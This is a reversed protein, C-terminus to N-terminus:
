GVTYQKVTYARKSSDPIEKKILEEERVFQIFRNIDHFESKMKNNRESVWYLIGCWGYWWFLRAVEPLEDDPVYEADACAWCWVDNLNITQKYKEQSYEDELDCYFFVDAKTLFERAEQISFLEKEKFLVIVDMLSWTCRDEQM